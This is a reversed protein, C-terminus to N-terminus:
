APQALETVLELESVMHDLQYHPRLRIICVFSGPKEPHEKVKITSERIPYRAQEEWELDERGTTYKFLWNRLFDECEDATMFSGVKDRIMVKIYHAIRSSCLVHQLMASLRANAEGVKNQKRKPKHVSQNSYFAAFPTDYCHCLPIFGLDSLEREKYDTIIVDTVPKIAIDEADTDFSDCPLNTLLGGGVQNRPVGRIHGFWGINAFERILIAGFGYASNGWCYNEQNRTSVQEYFFLGKYSGPTKRYPLRMLIHPLTIGVFQSDSKERFARWKIYEKQAFISHLKIPNALTSYNDLGFLEHSCGTIFPSFAAAAVQSIGELTAIDNHTHTQSPKHSVEYDGILAGYPEGGPTGYEENYIKQFLQSQDFELARSMDRTLETWSLDLIKIKINTTNEAQTTLYRIGRWSAELKQFNKHHIIANVQDNIMHDIDSISRNIADIIDEPNNLNNIDTFETLWYALSRIGDAEDLFQNINTIYAKQSCLRDLSTVTKTSNERPPQGHIFTTM